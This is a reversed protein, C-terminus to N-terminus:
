IGAKAPTVDGCSNFILFGNKRAFTRSRPLGHLKDYKALYNEDFSLIIEGM